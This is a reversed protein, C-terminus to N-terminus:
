RLAWKKEPLFDRLLMVLDDMRQVQLLLKSELEHWWRLGGKEFENLAEDLRDRVDLRESKELLGKVRGKEVDLRQLVNSMGQYLDGLLMRRAKDHSYSWLYITRFTNRSPERPVEQITVWGHEELVCMMAHTRHQTHLLHDAIHKDELKGHEYLIRVGRAAFRGHRREIVHEIERQAVTTVLPHADLAWIEVPPRDKKPDTIVTQDESEPKIVDNASFGLLLRHPDSALIRLYPIVLSTKEKQDHQEEPEQEGERYVEHSKHIGNPPQTSRRHQNSSNIAKGKGKDKPKDRYQTETKMLKVLEPGVADVIEQTSAWPGSAAPETDEGIDAAVVDSENDESFADLEHKERAAAEEDRAQIRRELEQDFDVQVNDKDIDSQDEYPDDDNGNDEEDGSNDAEDASKKRKSPPPEEEEEEEEDEEPPFEENPVPLEEELDEMAAERNKRTKEYELREDDDDQVDQEFCRPINREMLHLAVEYVRAPVDGLVRKAYNVLIQSRHSVLLRENNLRVADLEWEDDSKDAADKNEMADDHNTATGVGADEVAEDGDDDDEVIKRRKPGRQVVAPQVAEVPEAKRKKSNKRSKAPGNQIFDQYIEEAKQWAAEITEGSDVFQKRRAEVAEQYAISKKPGTISQTFRDDEKRVIKRIFSIFSDTPILHFDRVDEVYGLHRMKQLERWLQERGADKSSTDGNQLADPEVLNQEGAGSAKDEVGDDVAGDAQGEGRDVHNESATLKSYLPDHVPGNLVLDNVGLGYYQINFILDGAREGYRNEILKVNKGARILNYASVVDVDYFTTGTNDPQDYRVLDQQVLVALAHKITRLPLLTDWCLGTTSIRGNERIATFIRAILTGFTQEVLVNCLENLHKNSM